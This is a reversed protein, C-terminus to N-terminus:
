DPFDNGGSFVAFYSRPDGNAFTTFAGGVYLTTGSVLLSLVSGNANPDWATANSSSADLAALRNRLQGGVATFDGGAYVISDSV